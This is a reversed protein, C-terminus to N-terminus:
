ARLAIMPDIATARRAPLWSAAFAVAILTGAVAVYTVPDTAGVGYLLKSLLSSLALAAATGVVAGAVTLLVGERVVLARVARPQAGLAIRIGLERTRQAVQVMLVGYLGIAALLLALGGFLGTFDLLLRRPRLSEDIVEAMTTVDFTAETPDLSQVERRVAAGLEAPNGPGRV